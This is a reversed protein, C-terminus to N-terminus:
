TYSNLKNFTDLSYLCICEGACIRGARGCRQTVVDKSVPFNSVLMNCDVIPNYLNVNSFGTDIVLKLNSITVGTEIANTAIIIKRIVEENSVQKAELKLDKDSLMSSYYRIVAYDEM